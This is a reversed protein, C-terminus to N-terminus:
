RLPNPHPSLVGTAGGADEVVDYNRERVMEDAEEKTMFRGIPKTPHSFAEDDPDVRMQTIISSVPKHIGRNLSRRLANQLDYSM